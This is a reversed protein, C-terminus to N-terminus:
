AGASFIDLLIHVENLLKYEESTQEATNITDLVFVLIYCQKHEDDYATYQIM